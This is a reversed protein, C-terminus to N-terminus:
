SWKSDPRLALAGSTLNKNFYYGVGPVRNQTNTVIARIVSWLGLHTFHCGLIVQLSPDCHGRGVCLGEIHNQHGWCPLWGWLRLAALCLTAWPGLCLSELSLFPHAADIEIKAWGQATDHQDAGDCVQESAFSPSQFFTESTRMQCSTWLSSLTFKTFKTIIGQIMVEWNCSNPNLFFRQFM